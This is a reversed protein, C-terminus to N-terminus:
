WGGVRPAVFFNGNKLETSFTQIRTGARTFPSCGRRKLAWFQRDILAIEDQTTRENVKVLVQSPFLVHDKHVM